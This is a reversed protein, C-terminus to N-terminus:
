ICEDDACNGEMHHLYNFSISGPQNPLAQPNFVLPDGIPTIQFCFRTIHKPTTEFVDQYLAWGWLYLFKRGSQVDVIDQPTIAAGPYVPAVGGHMNSNPPLLGSGAPRVTKTFDFGQRLSSNLLECECYIVLRRTPTDGSNRWVPRFRWNYQGAVNSAEWQGLINVAFVWARDAIHMERTISALKFTIYALFVTALATIAASGDNLIKGIQILLVLVPNHATCHEQDSAADHECIQNPAAIWGYHIAFGVLLLVCLVIVLCLRRSPLKLM